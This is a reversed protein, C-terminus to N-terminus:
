RSPLVADVRSPYGVLLSGELGHRSRRVPAGRLTGYVPAGHNSRAHRHHKQPLCSAWVGRAAATRRDTRAMNGLRHPCSRLLLGQRTSPGRSWPRGPCRGQAARALAALRRRLALAPPWPKRVLPTGPVGPSRWSIWWVGGVCRQRWHDSLGVPKKPHTGGKVCLARFLATSSMMSATLHRNCM